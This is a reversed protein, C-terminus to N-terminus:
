MWGVIFGPRHVVRHDVLMRCQDDPARVHGIHDRAHIERPFLSQRDCDTPTPVIGGTEPGAIVADNQVQPSHLAHMDIRLSATHPDLTSRCRTVDVVGRLCEAQRHGGPDDGGGAHAAQRQTATEPVDAPCEAQGGVIDDGRIDDGRITRKDGGAGIVMGIEEPRNSAAAAIEPDDSRELELGM